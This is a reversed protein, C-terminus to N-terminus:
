KAPDTSYTSAIESIKSSFETLSISNLCAIRYSDRLDEFLKNYSPDIIGDYRNYWQKKTTRYKAIINKRHNNISLCGWMKNHINYCTSCLTLTFDTSTYGKTTFRKRKLYCHTLFYLQAIIYDDFSYIDYEMHNDSIYLRKEFAYKSVLSPLSESYYKISGSFGQCEPFSIKLVNVIDKRLLSFDSIFSPIFTEVDIGEIARSFIFQLNKLLELSGCSVSDASPICSLASEILTNCFENKISSCIYPLLNDILTSKINNKPYINLEIDPSDDSMTVYFSEEFFSKELEKRLDCHSFSYSLYSERNNLVPHEALYQDIANVINKIDEKSVEYECSDLPAIQQLKSLLDHPFLHKKAKNIRQCYLSPLYYQVGLCLIDYLEKNIYYDQFNAYTRHIDELIHLRSDRSRGKVFFAKFSSILRNDLEALDTNLFLILDKLFASSTIRNGQKLTSIIEKPDNINDSFSLIEFYNM